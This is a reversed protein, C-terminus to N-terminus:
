ISEKVDAQCEVAFDEPDFGMEYGSATDFDWTEWDLGYASLAAIFRNMWHAFDRAREGWGARQADEITYTKRM